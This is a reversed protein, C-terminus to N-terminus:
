GEGVALTAAIQEATEDAPTVVLWCGQQDKADHGYALLHTGGDAGDLKLRFAGEAGPTEVVESSAVELTTEAYYGVFKPLPEDPRAADREAFSDIYASGTTGKFFVPDDERVHEMRWDAPFAAACWGGGWAKFGAPISAPDPEPADTSGPMPVCATSLLLVLALVPGIRRM